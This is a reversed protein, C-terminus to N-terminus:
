PSTGTEHRKLDKPTSAGTAPCFLCGASECYLTRSHWTGPGPHRCIGHGLRHIHREPLAIMDLTSQKFVSDGFVNSADIVFTLDPSEVYFDANVRVDMLLNGQAPDYCFPSRSNSHREPFGPVTRWAKLLYFDLDTSWKIMQALMRPSLRASAM